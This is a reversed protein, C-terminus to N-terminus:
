IHQSEHLHIIWALTYKISCVCSLHSQQIQSFVSFFLPQLHLLFTLNYNQITLMTLSKEDGDVVCCFDGFFKHRHKDNGENDYRRRFENFYSYIETAYTRSVFYLCLTAAELMLFM